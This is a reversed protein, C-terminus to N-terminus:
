PLAALRFLLDSLMQKRRLPVRKHLCAKTTQFTFSMPWKRIQWKRLQGYRVSNQFCNLIFFKKNWTNGALSPLEGLMPFAQPHKSVMHGNKLLSVDTRRRRGLPIRLSPRITKEHTTMKSNSNLSIDIYIFINYM